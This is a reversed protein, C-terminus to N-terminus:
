RNRQVAQKAAIEYFARVVPVFQALKYTYSTRLSYIRRYDSMQDSKEGFHKKILERIEIFLAEAKGEDGFGIGPVQAELKHILYLFDRAAHTHEAM